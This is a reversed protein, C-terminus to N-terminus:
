GDIINWSFTHLVWRKIYKLLRSLKTISVSVFTSLKVCHICGISNALTRVGLNSM